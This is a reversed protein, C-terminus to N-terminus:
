WAFSDSPSPGLCDVPRQQKILGEWWNRAQAHSPASRNHAYVLLSVDVITM